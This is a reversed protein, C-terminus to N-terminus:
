LVTDRFHNELQKRNTHDPQESPGLGAHGNDALCLTSWGPPTQGLLAGLAECGCGCCGRREGFRSSSMIIMRTTWDLRLSGGQRVGVKGRCRGWKGAEDSVGCMFSKSLLLFVAM